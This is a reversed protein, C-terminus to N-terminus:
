DHEPLSDHARIRRVLAAELAHNGPPSPEPARSTSWEKVITRLVRWGDRFTRLNTTGHIRNREHSAVEVVKLRAKAARVAMATEIEFGNVDAALQRAHQIRFANFGYCLDTYRTGFLGNVLRTLTWNGARRLRTIDDSAAGAMFRSGKAVDAGATIAEVFRPIETPDTSGDSDLLVVIDGSSAEIGCLLANGKGRATQHVIRVDPRLRKAVEVTDDTSYGDVVVLEHISDPLKPIIYPLNPAETLTPMVVSVLPARGALIDDDKSGASAAWPLGTGALARYRMDLEERLQRGV